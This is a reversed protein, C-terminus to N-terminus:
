KEWGVWRWQRGTGATAKELHLAFVHHALTPRAPWIGWRTLLNIM